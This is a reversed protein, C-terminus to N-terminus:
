ISVDQLCLWYFTNLSAETHLHAVERMVEYPANFFALLLSSFFM